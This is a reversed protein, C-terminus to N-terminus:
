RSSERLWISSPKLPFEQSPSLHATETNVSKLNNGLELLSLIIQKMPNKPSSFLVLHTAM